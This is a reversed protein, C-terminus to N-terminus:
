EPPGVMRNHLERVYVQLSLKPVLQTESHSDISAKICYNSIPSQVIQPHHLIWDYLYKKGTSKNKYTRAEKTFQVMVYKMIQNGQSKIECFM